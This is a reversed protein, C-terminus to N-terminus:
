GPEFGHGKAVAGHGKGAVADEHVLSREVTDLLREGAILDDIREISQRGLQGVSLNLSPEEHDTACCYRQGIGRATHRPIDVRDELGLRHDIFSSKDHSPLEVKGVVPQIVRHLGVDWAFIRSATDDKGGRRELIPPM